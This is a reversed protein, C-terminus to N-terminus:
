GKYTNLSVARSDAHEIIAKYADEQGGEGVISIPQASLIDEKALNLDM